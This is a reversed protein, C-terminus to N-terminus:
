SVIEEAVKAFDTKVMTKHFSYRNRSSMCFEFNGQCVFCCYILSHFNEIERRAGRAFDYIVVKDAEKALTNEM